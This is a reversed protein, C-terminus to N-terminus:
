CIKEISKLILSTGTINDFNYKKLTVTIEIEKNIYDKLLDKLYNKYSPINIYCYMTNENIYSYPVNYNSDIQSIIYNIKTSDIVTIVLKGYQDIKKIIGQINM